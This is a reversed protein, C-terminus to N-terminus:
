FLLGLHVFAPVCPFELLLVARGGGWRGFVWKFVQM